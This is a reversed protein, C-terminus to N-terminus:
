DPWCSLVIHCAAAQQSAYLHGILTGWALAHVQTHFELYFRLQCLQHISASMPEAIEIIVVARYQDINTRCICLCQCLDRCAIGENKPM